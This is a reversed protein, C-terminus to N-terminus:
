WVSSTSHFINCIYYWKKSAFLTWITNLFKSFKLIITFLYLDVPFWMVFICAEFFFIWCFSFYSYIFFYWSTYVVCLDSMNYVLSGFKPPITIQDNEMHNMNIFHCGNKSKKMIALASIRNGDDSLFGSAWAKPLDTIQINETQHMNVFHHGNKMIALASIGNGLHLNEIPKTEGDGCWKM